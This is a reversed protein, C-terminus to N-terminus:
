HIYLPRGSRYNRVQKRTRRRRENRNETFSYNRVQKRTKRRRENQKGTFSYNRVQMWTNRENQKGTFFSLEEGADMHKKREAERYLKGMHEGM